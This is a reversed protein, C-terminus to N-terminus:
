QQTNPRKWATIGNRTAWGGHGTMPDEVRLPCNYKDDDFDLKIVRCPGGFRTCLVLDGLKIARLSFLIELAPGTVWGEEETTEM